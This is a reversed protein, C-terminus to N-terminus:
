EWYGTQWYVVPGTSYSRANIWLLGPRPRQVWRGTIWEWDNNKWGWYGRIFYPDSFSAPPAKEEGEFYTGFPPETPMPKEVIIEQPQYFPGGPRLPGFEGTEPVSACGGLLTLCTILVLCSNNKM